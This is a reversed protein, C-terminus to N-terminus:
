VCLVWVVTVTVGEKKENGREKMQIDIGYENKIERDASHSALNPQLFFIM